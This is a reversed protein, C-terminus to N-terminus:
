LCVIYGVMSRYVTSLHISLYIGPRYVKTFYRQGLRHLLWWAAGVSNKLGVTGVSNKLRSDWRAAKNDPRYWSPWFRRFALSVLCSQSTLCSQRWLPLPMSRYIGHTSANSQEHAPKAWHYPTLSTHLLVETRIQKAPEGKEEFTTTHPCHRTVKDRM